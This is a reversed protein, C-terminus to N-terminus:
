TLFESLIEKDDFHSKVGRIDQYDEHGKGAVLVIDGPKAIETARKIAERRDLITEINTQDSIGALIDAIIVEPQESRPNDSTVIVHDGLRAAIEGMIPRKTKDRDGGAGFVVIVRSQKFSDITTLVNELADPTHAYDVIGFVGSKSVIKEMRGRAGRLKSIALVVDDVNVGLTTAAAFIAAINYANFEGVLPSAIATDNIILELGEASSKKATFVFDAATHGYSLKRAMTDAVMYSGRNDDSNYLAFSRPSLGDFFAKKAKAYEDLSSHYDLHDQTLNTFIGGVFDIGSIRRQDIAHSSVEMFCYESGVEIMKSINKQIEIANGTTHTAPIVEGDIINEVTSLLGSKHGLTTFLQYLMTAITTKGNTGTVGIVKIKSFDNGFFERAMLGVADNTNKVEIYTIGAQFNQPLRECVIATAGREIADNIFNYGDTKTGSVAFFMAGPVIERSDLCLTEIETAEPGVIKVVAINKLLDNLKM